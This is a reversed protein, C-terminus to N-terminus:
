YVSLGSTLLKCIAAIGELKNEFFSGLNKEGFVALHFDGMNVANIFISLPCNLENSLNCYFLISM